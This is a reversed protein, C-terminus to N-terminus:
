RPKAHDADRTLYFVPRLSDSRYDRDVECTTVSVHMREVAFRAESANPSVLVFEALQTDGHCVIVSYKPM